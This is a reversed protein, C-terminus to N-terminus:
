WSCVELCLAAIQYIPQPRRELRDLRAYIRKIQDESNSDRTPYPKGYIQFPLIPPLESLILFVAGGSPSCLLVDLREDIGIGPVVHDKRRRFAERHVVARLIRFGGPVFVHQHDTAGSAALGAKEQLRVQHLAVRFLIGTGEHHRVRFARDRDFAARQKQLSSVADFDQIRDIEPLGHPIVWKDVDMSLFINQFEHGAQDGIGCAVCLAPVIEPDLRFGKQVGSQDPVDVIFGWFFLTIEIRKDAHDVRHFDTLIIFLELIRHINQKLLQLFLAGIM